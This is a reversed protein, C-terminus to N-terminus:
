PFTVVRQMEPHSTGNVEFLYFGQFLNEGIMEKLSQRVINGIHDKHKMFQEYANIQFLSIHPIYMYQNDPIQNKNYQDALELNFKKLKDNQFCEIYALFEKKDKKFYRIQTPTLIFEKELNNLTNISTKIIDLEQSSIEKPLYYLTVHLSHIDQLTITSEIQNDKCYQQLATFLNGFVKNNIKIGIFHSTVEM